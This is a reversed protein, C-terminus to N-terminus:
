IPQSYGAFALHISVRVPVAKGNLIGPKYRSKLLSQVAPKALDPQECVPAEADSPKGKEDITLTVDCGNSGAFRLVASEFGEDSFKDLRPPAIAATLPYVGKADPGSSAKGLPTRVEFSLQMRPEGRRFSGGKFRYNVEVKMEVPVPTGQKDTGPKFRYTAVANLSSRAFVNDTCRVIHVAQPNGDADVILSIVCQGDMQHQRALKPVEADDGKIFVPAKVGNVGIRYPPSNAEAPQTSDLAYVFGTTLALPIAFVWLRKM